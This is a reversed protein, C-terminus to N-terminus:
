RLNTIDLHSDMLARAGTQLKKYLLHKCALESLSKSKALTIVIFKLHWNQTAELIKSRLYAKAIMKASPM